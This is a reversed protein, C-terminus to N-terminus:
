LVLNEKVHKVLELQSEYRKLPMCIIVNNVQVKHSMWTFSQMVDSLVDTLTKM